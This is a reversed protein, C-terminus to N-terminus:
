IQRSASNIEAEKEAIVFLLRSGKPEVIKVEVQRFPLLNPTGVDTVSPSQGTTRFLLALAKEPASKGTIWASFLVVLRGGPRLVRYIETLTAPDVIYQTPFTAVVSDFAGTPFPLAQALGRSLRPTLNKKRLRGGAQRAMQASEDLGFVQYGGGALRAQLHGPGFGLELVRKGKLMQEAEFVWRKWQGLSVAAAVLDYTWAFPHYLMRFFFTLLRALLRKKVPPYLKDAM